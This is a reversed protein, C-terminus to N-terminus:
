PSALLADLDQTLSDLAVQEEPTLGGAHLLLDDYEMPDLALDFLEVMVPQAVVHSRVLKYRDDRLSQQYNMSQGPAPNNWDFVECFVQTRPAAAAPDHLLPFFSKSDITRGAPIVSPDNLDVSAVQAVTAFIDVLHVLADSSRGPNTIWDGSAILPVHVGTEYVTGKCRVPDFPWFVNQQPGSSASTTGNDGAFLILTDELLNHQMAGMGTLLRGIESDMHEVMANYYPWVDENATPMMHPLASGPPRQYPTHGANFAVVCLWPRAHQASIWGLAEDVNDVTAFTTTVSTSGNVTKLWQEYHQPPTSRTSFNGKAGAFYDYGQNEPDGPIGLSQHYGLHWKGILAHRYGSHAADLMEPLTIENPSMPGQPTLTNNSRVVTGIGTRFSYRGTQMCARTPSCLPNAYARDFRVGNAALGDIVPTSPPPPNTGPQYCGVKDVGLDDALLILVNSWRDSAQHSGGDLSPVPSVLFSSALPLLLPIM